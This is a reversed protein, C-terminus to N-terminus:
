LKEADFCRTTRGRFLAIAIAINRSNEQPGTSRLIAFATSFNRVTENSVIHKNREREGKNLWSKQKKWNEEQEKGEGEIEM